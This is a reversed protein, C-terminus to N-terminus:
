RGSNLINRGRGQRGGLFAAEPDSVQERTILSSSISCRRKEEQEPAGAVDIAAAEVGLLVPRGIQLNRRDSFSAHRREDVDAASGFRMPFTRLPKGSLDHTSM